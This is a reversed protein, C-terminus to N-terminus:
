GKIYFTACRENGFYNKYTDTEVTASMLIIKPCPMCSADEANDENELLAKKLVYLLCDMPETREHIEDVIIHTYESRSRLAIISYLLLETTVYKLRSDASICYDFGVQHGCISGYPWKRYNAVHKAVSIAAVRRPQTVVINCAKEQRYIKEELLLQPIQTSKGCGTSGVIITVANREIMNLITPWQEVVPLNAPNPLNEPKFYTNRFYDVTKQPKGM